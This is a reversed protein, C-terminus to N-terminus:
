VGHWSSLIYQWHSFYGMSGVLDLFLPLYLIISIYAISALPTWDRTLYRTENTLTAWKHFLHRHTVYLSYSEPNQNLKTREPPHYNGLLNEPAVPLIWGDPFFCAILWSQASTLLYFLYFPVKAELFSLTSKYETLLRYKWSYKPYHKLTEQVNTM